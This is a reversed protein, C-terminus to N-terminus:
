VRRDSQWCSIGRRRHAACEAAQGVVAAASRGGVEPNILDM